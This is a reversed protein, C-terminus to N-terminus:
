DDWYGPPNKKSFPFGTVRDNKDAKRRQHSPHDATKDRWMELETALQRGIDLYEPRDALNELEYPDKELNYIEVGPRPCAFIRKQAATLKGERDLRKLEYWSPSTSLDSPIGHPWEIYSNLICKYKESRVCRIHEDCGHWNREAFVYQRVPKSQDSFVSMISKGYMQPPKAVGAVDLLTPALDITSLLHSYRTGPKIRGTWSFILPTRIGADYATGKAGPFPM